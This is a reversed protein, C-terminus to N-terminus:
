GQPLCCCDFIHLIIDICFVHREARGMVETFMHYIGYSDASKPVAFEWAFWEDTENLTKNNNNDSREVTNMWIKIARFLESECYM